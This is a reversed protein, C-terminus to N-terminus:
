KDEKKESDGGKPAENRKKEREIEEVYNMQLNTICSILTNEEQSSLNGKTKVKLMELVDITSKAAQLDKSVTGTLPNILKGLQQMGAQYLSSVLNVFLVDSNLNANGNASM